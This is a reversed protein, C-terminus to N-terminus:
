ELLDVNLQIETIRRGSKIVSVSKSHATAVAVLFFFSSQEDASNKDM